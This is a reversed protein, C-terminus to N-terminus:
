LSTGPNESIVSFGKDGDREEWSARNRRRRGYVVPPGRGYHMWPWISGPLGGAGGPKGRPVKGRECSDCASERASVVGRWACRRGSAGSARRRAVGSQILRGLCWEGRGPVRQGILLGPAGGNRSKEEKKRRGGDAM